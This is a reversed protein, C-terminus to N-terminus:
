SPNDLGFKRGDVDLCLKKGDADLCLSIQFPRSLLATLSITLPDNEDLTIGNPLEKDSFQLAPTGKNIIVTRTDIGTLMWAGLRNRTVTPVTLNFSQPESSWGVNIPMPVIGYSLKPKPVNVTTGIPLLAGVNLLALKFLNPNSIAAPEHLAAEAMALPFPQDARGPFSLALLCRARLKKIEGIMGTAKLAFQGSLDISVILKSLQVNGTDPPILDLVLSVDGMILVQKPNLEIRGTLWDRGHWNLTGEAFAALQGDRMSVGGHGKVRPGQDDFLQLELAGELAFDPANQKRPDIRGKLSAEVVKLPPRFAAGGPWAVWPNASQAFQTEIEMGSESLTGSLSAFPIGCFNGPQAGGSDDGVAAAFGIRFRSGPGIRGEAGARLAFLQTGAVFGLALDFSGSVFCHTDSVSLTADLLKCGPNNFLTATAGADFTFKGDGFLELAALRKVGIELHLLGPVVNWRASGEARVSGVLGDRKARGALRLRNHVVFPLRAPIGAVNLQLNDIEVASVLSFSGDAFIYGAFRFRQGGFVRVRAGLLVGVSAPLADPYAAELLMRNLRPLEQGKLTKAEHREILQRLSSNLSVGKFRDRDYISGGPLGEGKLLPNLEAILRRALADPVVGWKFQALMNRLGGSFRERLFNGLPQDDTKLKLALAPTVNGVCLLADSLPPPVGELDAATFGAFEIGGLLNGDADGPDFSRPAGPARRINPKSHPGTAATLSDRAALPVTRPIVAADVRGTPIDDLLSFDTGQSRGSIASLAGARDTLVIVASAEFGAFNASLRVKRLEPPLYALIDAPLTRIDGALLTAAERELGAAVRRGHKLADIVTEGVPKLTKALRQCLTLFTEINITVNLPKHLLEDAQPFLRSVPEPLTIYADALTVRVMDALEGRPAIEYLPNAALALLEFVALPSFSPIPRQLNFRLGFGGLRLNVCFNDCFPISVVPALMLAALSDIGYAWYINDAVVTLGNREDGLMLDGDFDSNSSCHIALMPSYSIRKLSLRIVDPVIVQLGDWFPECTRADRLGPSINRRLDWNFQFLPLPIVVKGVVIPMLDFQFALKSQIPLRVGAGLEGSTDLDDVLKEPLVLEGAFAVAMSRKLYGFGFMLRGIAVSGGEYGSIFAPISIKSDEDAALSFYILDASLGVTLQYRSIDSFPGEVMFRVSGGVRIDRPNRFSMSFFFDAFELAPKALLLRWEQEGKLRCAVALEGSTKFTGDPQREGVLGAAIRLPVDDAYTVGDPPRVKWKSGTRYAILIDRNDPANGSLKEVVNFYSDLFQDYRDKSSHGDHEDDSRLREYIARDIPRAGAEQRSEENIPRNKPFGFEKRSFHPFRLPLTPPQQGPLARGFGVRVENTSLMLYAPIVVGARAEVEIAFSPTRSLCLCLGSLGFGIGVGGQGGDAVPNPAVALGRLLDFLFLEKKANTFKCCLCLEPNEGALLVSAAITMDVPHGDTMTLQEALAARHADKDPSLSLVFSVSGGIVLNDFLPKLHQAIPLDPSNLQPAFSFEGSGELRGGFKGDALVISGGIHHLELHLPPESQTVGPFYLDVEFPDLIKASLKFGGGGSANAEAEAELRLTTWGEADGARVRIPDLAPLAPFKLAVEVALLGEIMQNLTAFPLASEAASPFSRSTFTFRCTRGPTFGLFSIEDPNIEYEAELRVEFEPTADPPTTVYVSVYVSMDGSPLPLPFDEPRPLKM